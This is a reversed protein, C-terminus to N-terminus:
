RPPDSPVFGGWLNSPYWRASNAEPWLLGYGRQAPVGATLWERWDGPVFSSGEFGVFGVRFRVSEFITLGISALWEELPEQWVRTAADDGTQFPYGGIQPWAHALSGLPVYFDLLDTGEPDHVWEHGGEYRIALSGCAVRAGDPLNAVGYVHSERDIVVDPSVFAQQSPDINPDGYPGELDTRGWLAHLASSLRADSRPGLELELEYHGGHWADPDAFLNGM